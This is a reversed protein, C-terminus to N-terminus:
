SQLTTEGTLVNVLYVKTTGNAFIFTVKMKFDALLQLSGHYAYTQSDAGSKDVIQTSYDITGIFINRPGSTNAMIDTWTYSTAVSDSSTITSGSLKSIYRNTSTEGNVKLHHYTSDVARVDYNLTTKYVNRFGTGAETTTLTDKQLYADLTTGDNLYGNCMYTFISNGLYTITTDGKIDSRNTATTVSQGCSYAAMTVLRSTSGAKIGNNAVTNLGSSLSNYFDLALQKGIAATNDTKVADANNKKCSVTLCVAAALLM